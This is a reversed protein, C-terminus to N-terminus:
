ATNRLETQAEDFLTKSEAWPLDDMDIQRRSADTEVQGKADELLDATSDPDFPFASPSERIAKALQRTALARVFQHTYTHGNETEPDSGVWATARDIIPGFCAEFHDPDVQLLDGCAKIAPGTLRGELPGGAISIIQDIGWKPVAQPHYEAIAVIASLISKLEEINGFRRREKLLDLLCHLPVTPSHVGVIELWQIAERRRDPDEALRKLGETAVQIGESTLLNGFARGFADATSPIFLRPDFALLQDVYPTLSGPDTESVAEVIDVLRHREFEDCHCWHVLLELHDTVLEPRYKGVSHVHRKVNTRRHDFTQQVDIATRVQGADVNEPVTTNFEDAFDIAEDLERHAASRRETDM